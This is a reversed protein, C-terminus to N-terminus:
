LQVLVDADIPYPAYIAVRDVVGSFRELLLGTLQNPAGDVSFEQLLEDTILSTMGDWDGARARTQLAAARDGEGYLEFLSRYAPTSAYFAIQKRVAERAKDREDDTNGTVVLAPCSLEFAGDLRDGVVPLVTETISRRSSLPHLVLGDAHTVAVKVMAPGVAALHIPPPSQGSPGPDFMPTMLTHSHFEGRFDLPEQENWAKWIARVAEIYEAMRRAPHSWQESFRREIHARVQTGIGLVFRGSSVRALEHAHQALIMPNRAFAVAVATRLHLTSTALAAVALPGFPERPAELAWLGGIGASETARAVSEASDLTLGNGPYFDVVLPKAVSDETM